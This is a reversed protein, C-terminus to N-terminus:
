KNGSPATAGDGPGSGTPNGMGDSGGVDAGGGFSMSGAISPPPPDGGGPPGGGHGGNNNNPPVTIYITQTHPPHPHPHKHRIAHPGLHGSKSSMAQQKIDDIDSMFIIRRETGEDKLSLDKQGITGRLWDGIALRDDQSNGISAESGIVVNGSGTQHNQGAQYGVFVNEAGRAKAGAKFGFAM